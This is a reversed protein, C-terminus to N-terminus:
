ECDNEEREMEEECDDVAQAHAAAWGATDNHLTIVFTNSDARYVDCEAFKGKFIMQNGEHAIAKAHELSGAKITMSVTDVSPTDSM